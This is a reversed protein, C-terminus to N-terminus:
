AAVEVHEYGKLAGVLAAYAVILQAQARGLDGPEDYARSPTWNAMAQVADDLRKLAEQTQPHTM